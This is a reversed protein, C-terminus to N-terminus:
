LSHPPFWVEAQTLSNATQEIEWGATGLHSMKMWPPHWIKPNVVPECLQDWLASFHAASSVCCQTSGSGSNVDSVPLFYLPFCGEATPHPLIVPASSVARIMIHSTSKMGCNRPQEKKAHDLHASSWACFNPSQINRPFTLWSSKTDTIAARLWKVISTSAM